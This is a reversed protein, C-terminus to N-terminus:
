DDLAGIPASTLSYTHSLHPMRKGSNEVSIKRAILDHISGFFQEKCLNPYNYIYTQEVFTILANNENKFYISPIFIM